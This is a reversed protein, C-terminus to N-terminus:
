LHCSKESLDANKMRNVPKSKSIFWFNIKYDNKRVIFIAIDNFSLYKQLLIQCGNCALRQYNFNIKFFYRYHHQIRCEQLDSTKRIDIGESIDIRESEYRIYWYM